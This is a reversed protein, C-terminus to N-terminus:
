PTSPFSSDLLADALPSSIVLHNVLPLATRVIEWKHPHAAVVVVGPINGRMARRAILNLHSVSIGLWRSNIDDLKKRSTTTSTVKPLWLGGICGVSIEGLEIGGECDRTEEYWPDGVSSEDNSVGTLVMDVNAIRPSDSTEATGFVYDYARSKRAFREIVAMGDALNSPIRAPVGQLSVVRSAEVRYANALKIAAVSPSLSFNPFNLPEGCIPFFERHGGAPQAPIADVISQITRGWAVACTEADDILRVIVEAARRGFLALSDDSDDEQIVHLGKMPSFGSLSNGITWDDIRSRLEAIRPYGKRKTLRNREEDSLEPPWNVNWVLWGAARAHKLLKSVEAQSLDLDRAIEQQKLGEQTLQACALAKLDRASLTGEVPFASLADM